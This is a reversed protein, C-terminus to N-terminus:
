KDAPSRRRSSAALGSEFKPLSIFSCILFPEITGTAIVQLNSSFTYKYFYILKIFLNKKIEQIFPL